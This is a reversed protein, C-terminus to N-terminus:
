YDCQEFLREAWLLDDDSVSSLDHSGNERKTGEFIRNLRKREDATLRDVDLKRHRRRVRAEIGTLRKQISM